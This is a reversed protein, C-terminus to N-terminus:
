LKLWNSFLQMPRSSSINIIVIKNIYQRELAEPCKVFYTVFLSLVVLDQFFCYDLLSLMLNVFMCFTLCQIVFQFYLFFFFVGLLCIHLTCTSWCLPWNILDSIYCESFLNSKLFSKFESINNVSRLSRPLSIWLKPAIVSFSRGGM